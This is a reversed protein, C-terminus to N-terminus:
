GKSQNSPMMGIDLSVSMDVGGIQAATAEHGHQELSQTVLLTAQHQCQCQDTGQDRAGVIPPIHRCHSWQPCARELCQGTMIILDAYCAM